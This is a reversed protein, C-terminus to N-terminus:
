GRPTSAARRVAGVSIRIGLNHVIWRLAGPERSESRLWSLADGRIQERHCPRDVAGLSGKADNVAREIVACWLQREPEYIDTRAPTADNPDAMDDVLMTELRAAVSM